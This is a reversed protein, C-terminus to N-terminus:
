PSIEAKSGGYLLITLILLKVLFFFRFATKMVKQSIFMQYLERTM